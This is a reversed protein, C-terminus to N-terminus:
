AGRPEGLRASDGATAPRHAQGTLAIQVATAVLDFLGIPTLAGPGYLQVEFTAQDLSELASYARVRDRPDLQDFYGNEELHDIMDDDVWAMVPWTPRDRNIRADGANLDFTDGVRPAARTVAALADLLYDIGGDLMAEDIVELPKNGSVRLSTSSSHCADLLDDFVNTSRPAGTLQNMRM